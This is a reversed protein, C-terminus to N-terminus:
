RWSQRRLRKRRADFLECPHASYNAPSRDLDTEFPHM